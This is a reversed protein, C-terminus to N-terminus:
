EMEMDFAEDMDPDHAEYPSFPTAGTNLLLSGNGGAMSAMFPSGPWLPPAGGEASLATSAMSGLEAGVPSNLQMLSPSLMPSRQLHPTPDSMSRALPQFSHEHIEPKPVNRTQSASHLVEFATMSTSMMTPPDFKDYAEEEEGGFGSLRHSIEGTVINSPLQLKEQLPESVPETSAKALLIALGSKETVPKNTADTRQKSNSNRIQNQQIREAISITPQHSQSLGFPLRNRDLRRVQGSRPERYSSPGDLFKGRQHSERLSGYSTIETQPEEDYNYITSEGALSIPPLSNLRTESKSLSGLFPAKLLSGLPKSSSENAMGVHYSSSAAVISSGYKKRLQIADREVVDIGADDDDDDDDDDDADTGAEFGITDNVKEPALRAIAIPNSRTQTTPLQDTSPALSSGSPTSHQTRVLPSYQGGSQEVYARNEQRITDDTRENLDLAQRLRSEM